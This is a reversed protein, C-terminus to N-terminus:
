DGCETTRVSGLGTEAVLGVWKIATIGGCNAATLTITDSTAALTATVVFMKYQGAYETSESITGEIATSM